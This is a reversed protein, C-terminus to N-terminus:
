APVGARQGKDDQLDAEGREVDAARDLRFRRGSCNNSTEALSAAVPAVHVVPQDVHFVPELM